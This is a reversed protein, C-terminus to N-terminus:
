LEDVSARRQSDQRRGSWTTQRGCATQPGWAPAAHAHQIQTTAGCLDGEKWPGLYSSEQCPTTVPHHGHTAGAQSVSWFPIQDPNSGHAQHGAPARMMGPAPGSSCADKMTNMTDTTLAPARAAGQRSHPPVAQALTKQTSQRGPKSRMRFSDRIDGCPM